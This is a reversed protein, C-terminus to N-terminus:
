SKTEAVIAYMMHAIYQEDDDMLLESWKSHKIACKAMSCPAYTRVWIHCSQSLQDSMDGLGILGTQDLQEFPFISRVM